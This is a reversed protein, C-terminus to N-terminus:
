NVRANLNALAVDGSVILVIKYLRTARILFESNM